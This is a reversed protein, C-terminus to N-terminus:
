LIHALPARSQAQTLADGAEFGMAAEDLKTRANYM